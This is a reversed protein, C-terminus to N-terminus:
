RGTMLCRARGALDQKVTVKLGQERLLGAASEEQDFGIEIVAVGEPALHDALAPALARYADLGDAGAFLALHPEYHAVDRPLM